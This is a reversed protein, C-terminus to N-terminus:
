ILVKRKVRTVTPTEVATNPSTATPGNAPVALAPSRRGRGVVVLISGVVVLGDTVVVVVIGVETGTGTEKETVSLVGSL